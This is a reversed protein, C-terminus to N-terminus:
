SFSRPHVVIEGPKPALERLTAILADTPGARRLEKEMEPTAEFDIGQQRARQGVRHPSVQGQWLKVVDDRSLRHPANQAELPLLWACLALMAVTFGIVKSHRIM